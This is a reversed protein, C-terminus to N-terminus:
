IEYTIYTDNYKLKITKIQKNQSYLPVELSREDDNLYINEYGEYFKKLDDWCLGIYIKDSNQNNILPIFPIYYVDNSDKAYVRYLCPSLEYKNDSIKSCVYKENDKLFIYSENIYENKEIKTVYEDLNTLFKTFDSENKVNFIRNTGDFTEDGVVYDFSFVKDKTLSTCWVTHAKPACSTLIILNTIILIIFKLNKKM